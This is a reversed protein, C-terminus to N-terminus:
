TFLQGIQNIKSAMKPIIASRQKSLEQNRFAGQNMELPIAADGETIM